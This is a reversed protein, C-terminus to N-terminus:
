QATDDVVEKSVPRRPGSGDPSRPPRSVSRPSCSAENGMRCPQPIGFQRLPVDVGADRLAQAVASDVSGARGNDEVVGVMRHRAAPPPLADDVPKVWRPDVVTVGICRERPLAGGRARHRRARRGSGPDHPGRIRELMPLTKSV